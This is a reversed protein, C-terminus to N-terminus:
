SLRLYQMSVFFVYHNDPSQKLFKELDYFKLKNHQDDDVLTGYDYHDSLDTNGSVKTGVVNKFDDRWSANVVPRHTVILTRKVGMERALQLACLTKGFRMKANWLFQSYADTVAYQYNGKKGSRKCFRDKALDIARRQEPRLTITNGSFLSSQIGAKVEELTNYQEM